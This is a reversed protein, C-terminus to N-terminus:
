PINYKEKIKEIKRYEIFWKYEPFPVVVCKNCPKHSKSVEFIHKEMTRECCLPDQHFCKGAHTIYVTYRGYKGAGDTVPIDNKLYVDKPVKVLTIPDINAYMKYYIKRQKKWEARDKLWGFLAKLASPLSFLIIICIIAQLTTNNKM